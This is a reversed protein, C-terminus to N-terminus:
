KSANLPKRTKIGEPAKIDFTGEPIVDNIKMKSFKIITIDGRREIMKVELPVGKKDLLITIEKLINSPIFPTVRLVYRDEGAELVEIHYNKKLAEISFNGPLSPMSNLDVIDAEKIERYYIMVKEGDSTIKMGEFYDWILKEPSAFLFVGKTIMPTNLLDSHKEQTFEASLTKISKQMEIIESITDACAKETNGCIEGLFLSIILLILFGGVRYIM